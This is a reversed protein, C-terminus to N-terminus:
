FRDAIVAIRALRLLRGFEAGQADIGEGLKVARLRDILERLPDCSREACVEVVGLVHEADGGDRFVGAKVLADMLAAADVEDFGALVSGVEAVVAAARAHRRPAKLRHMLAAMAPADHVWGLAGNTEIDNKFAGRTFVWQAADADVEGFWPSMARATHLIRFFRHTAPANMAKLWEQWVREASLSALEGSAAMAAMLASTEPAVRFDPLQAAFRAVRFVRLPDEAFAETVHRLIGHAVDDAGNFPDILRGDDGQAMANITLDRRALDQELTVEPGADCDFGTHGPGIKRESRALAYEERTQPHLFVPFDRGVQEYGAAILEQPSSGVVVWDREDVRRGLLADRVAGGVLYVKM